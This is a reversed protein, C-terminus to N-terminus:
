AFILYMFYFFICRLFHPVVWAVLWIKPAVLVILSTWYCKWASWMTLVGGIVNGRFSGSFGYSLVWKMLRKFFDM